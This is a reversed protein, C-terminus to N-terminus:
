QGGGKMWFRATTFWLITSALMILKMPGEGMVKFAFLLPPVLTGVLALPALIKSITNM